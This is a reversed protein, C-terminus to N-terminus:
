LLLITMIRDLRDDDNCNKVAEIVLTPHCGVVNAVEVLTWYDPDNELREIIEDKM